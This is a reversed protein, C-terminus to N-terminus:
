SNGMLVWPLNCTSIGVIFMFIFILFILLWSILTDSIGFGGEKLVVCVGVLGITLTVLVSSVLMIRRRGHKFILFSSLATGLCRMLASIIAVTEASGLNLKNFLGIAFFTISYMGTLPYLFFLGALILFGRMNSGQSLKKISSWFGEGSSSTQLELDKFENEIEFNNEKSDEKTERYWSLAELAPMNKTLLFVPSEKCFLLLLMVVSNFVIPFACAYRWYFITGTLYALAIGVGSAVASSNLFSGKLRTESIESVYMIGVPIALCDFFGTIARGAFLMWQVSSLGILSWGFISCFAAVACAKRRGVRDALVPGLLTGFIQGVVLSSAFWSSNEQDFFEERLLQNICPSSYGIGYGCNLQLLNALSM